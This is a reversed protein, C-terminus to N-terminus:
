AVEIYIKVYPLNYHSLARGLAAVKGEVEVDGHWKLQYPSVNLADAATASRFVAGPPSHATTLKDHFLISESTVNQALTHLMVTLLPDNSQTEITASGSAALLASFLDFM